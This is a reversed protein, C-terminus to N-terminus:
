AARKGTKRRPRRPRRRRPRAPTPPKYTVCGRLHTLSRMHLQFRQPTTFTRDCTFCHRDEM